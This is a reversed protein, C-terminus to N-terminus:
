PTEGVQRLVQVVLKPSLFFRLGIRLKEVCEGLSQIRGEQKAQMLLGIVGITEIGRARAIGTALREDVLLLTDPSEMALAIAEAEGIELDILLNKIESENQPRQVVIYSPLTTLTNSAALEDRVAPPIVVEGFFEDLLSLLGLYQLARIPSTDSVVIRM